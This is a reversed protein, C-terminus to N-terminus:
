AGLVNWTQFDKDISGAQGLADVYSDAGVFINGEYLINGRLENWRSQLRSVFAPDEM